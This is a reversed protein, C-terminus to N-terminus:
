KLTEPVERLHSKAVSVLDLYKQKADAGIEVKQSSYLAAIGLYEWGSQYNSDMETATKAPIIALQYEGAEILEKSTKVAEAPSAPVEKAKAFAENETELKRSNYYNELVSIDNEAKGALDLNTQAVENGSYLFLAKQYELEASLYKKQDLYTNGRDFYDNSWNRRLPVTILDLLIIAAAIILVWKLVPSLSKQSQRRDFKKTDFDIM